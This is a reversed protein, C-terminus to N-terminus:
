IDWGIHSVKIEVAWGDTPCGYENVLFENVSEVFEDPLRYGNGEKTLIVESPLGLNHCTNEYDDEGDHNAKVGLDGTLKEYIDMLCMDKFEPELAVLQERLYEAEKLCEQQRKKTTASDLLEGIYGVLDEKIACNKQDKM